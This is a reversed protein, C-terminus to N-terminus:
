RQHDPSDKVSTLCKLFDQYTTLVWYHRPSMIIREETDTGGSTKRLTKFLLKRGVLVEITCNLSIQFRLKIGVRDQKGDM